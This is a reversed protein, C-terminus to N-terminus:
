DGIGGRADGASAEECRMPVRCQRRPRRRLFAAGRNGPLRDGCHRDLRDSRGAHRWREARLVETVASGFFGQVNRAALRGDCVCEVGYSDSFVIGVIGIIGFSCQLRTPGTSLGLPELMHMCSQPPRHLGYLRGNPFTPFTPISKGIEGQRPTYVTKAVCPVGPRGDTAIVRRGRRFMPTTSRAASRRQWSRSPPQISSRADGRSGPRRAGALIDTAALRVQFKSGIAAGLPTRCRCRGADSRSTKRRRRSRAM